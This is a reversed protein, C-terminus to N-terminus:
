AFTVAEDPHATNHDNLALAASVGTWGGGVILVDVDTIM